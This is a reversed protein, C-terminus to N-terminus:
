VSVMEHHGIDNIYFKFVAIECQGSKTGAKIMITECLKFGGPENGDISIHFVFQVLNFRGSM